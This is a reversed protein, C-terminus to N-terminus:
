IVLLVNNTLASVPNKLKPLLPRLKKKLYAFTGLNAKMLIGLQNMKFYYRMHLCLIYKNFVHDIEM